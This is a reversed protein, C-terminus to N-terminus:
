DGTKGAPQRTREDIWVQLSQRDFRIEDNPLVVFPITGLTVMQNLARTSVRLYDAASTQDLLGMVKGETQQETQSSM